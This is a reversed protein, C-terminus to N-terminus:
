VRFFRAINARAGLKCSITDMSSPICQSVITHVHVHRGHQGTCWPLELSLESPKLSKTIDNAPSVAVFLTDRPLTQEKQHHSLGTRQLLWARCASKAHGCDFHVLFVANAHLLRPTRRRPKPTECQTLFQAFDIFELTSQGIVQSSSTSM